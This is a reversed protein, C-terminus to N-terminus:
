RLITVGHCCELSIGNQWNAEFQLTSTEFLALQHMTRNSHSALDPSVKIIRHITLDSETKMNSHLEVTFVLKVCGFSINKDTQLRM